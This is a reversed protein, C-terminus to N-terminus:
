HLQSCVLQSIDTEYYLIVFSSMPGLLLQLLVILCLQLDTYSVVLNRAFTKSSKIAISLWCTKKGKGPYTCIANNEAKEKTKLIMYHFIHTNKNLTLVYHKIPHLEHIYGVLYLKGLQQEALQVYIFQLQSSLINELTAAAIKGAISHVATHSCVSLSRWVDTFSISWTLQLLLFTITTHSGDM